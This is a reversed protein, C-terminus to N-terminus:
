SQSTTESNKGETVDVITWYPLIVGERMDNCFIKKGNIVPVLYLQMGIIFQYGYYLQINGYYPRIGFEVHKKAWEYIDYENSSGFFRRLGAKIGPHHWFVKNGCDGYLEDVIQRSSATRDLIFWSGGAPGDGGSQSLRYRFVARATIDRNAPLQRRELNVTIVMDKDEDSSGSIHVVRLPESVHLTM